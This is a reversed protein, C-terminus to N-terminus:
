RVKVSAEVSMGPLLMLNKDKEPNLRIRVPIRQVVKVYNGTANEPAILAYKSGTAGGISEVTGDITRNFTDVHISVPQGVSMSHLQTEKFNAIVWIDNTPVIDMLLSGATVRQGSEIQKRGIIGGVPAIIETHGLNLKADRLAAESKKLDGAVRDVSVKSTAITEPATSAAELDNRREELHQRAAHVREQAAALNAQSAEVQAATTKAETMRQDYESLSIEHSNVLNEYRQRDAEAREHSATAQSLLAEASKEGAQAASLDAEAEVIAARSSALRSKATAETIPVNLKAAELQAKTAELNGQLSDVAPSYDNTDLKALVTGAAVYHTDDVVPNVWVVTGSIRANIPHVHGDIQADDTRVESSSILRYVMAALIVAAVAVTIAFVSRRGFSVAGIAHQSAM